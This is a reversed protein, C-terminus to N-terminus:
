DIWGLVLNRARIESVTLLREVEEYPMPNRNDFVISIGFPTEKIQSVINRGFMSEEFYVFEM